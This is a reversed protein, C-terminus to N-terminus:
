VTPPQWGEALLLARKAVEGGRNYAGLSGDSNIVRHCPITTDFNKRMVTGVARAAKDYGAMRAVEQYSMTTGPKISRVVACIAQAFDSTNPSKTQM